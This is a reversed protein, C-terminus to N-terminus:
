EGLRAKARAEYYGAMWETRHVSDGARPAFPCADAPEGAHYDRSGMERPTIPKADKLISKTPVDTGERLGRHSLRGSRRLRRRSCRECRATAGARANRWATCPAKSGRAN